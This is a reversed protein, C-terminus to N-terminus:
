SAKKVGIFEAAFDFAANAGAITGIVRLYRMLSSVNVHLHQVGATGSADTITTFVAGTVDEYGSGSAASHQLKVICTPTSGATAAAANLVILAGGEYDQVDIGTGTLTSTRSIPPALLLPIGQTLANLLNTM